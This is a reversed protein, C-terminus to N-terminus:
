VSTVSSSRNMGVLVDSNMGRTRSQNDHDGICHTGDSSLFLKYFESLYMPNLRETCSTVGLRNFVLHHWM